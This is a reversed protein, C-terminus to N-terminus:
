PIIEKKIYSGWPAFRKVTDLWYDLDTDVDNYPRGDFIEASVDGFEWSNEKLRWKFEHSANKNYGGNGRVLSGDVIKRQVVPRSLQAEIQAIRGPDATAIVFSSDRWDAANSNLMVEFYRLPPRETDKKCSYMMILFLFVICAILIISRNMCTTKLASLPVHLSRQKKKKLMMTKVIAECKNCDAKVSKFCGLQFRAVCIGPTILVPRTFFVDSQM